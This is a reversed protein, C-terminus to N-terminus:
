WWGQTGGDAAATRMHMQARSKVGSDRALLDFPADSRMFACFHLGKGYVDKGFRAADSPSAPEANLRWSTERRNQRCDDGRM